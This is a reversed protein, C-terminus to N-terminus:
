SVEQAQAAQLADAAQANLCPRVHSQRKNGPRNPTSFLLKGYLLVNTIGAKEWNRRVRVRNHLDSTLHLERHEPYCSPASMSGPTSSISLQASSYCSVALTMNSHMRDLVITKMSVKIPIASGGTLTTSAQPQAVLKKELIAIQTFRVLLDEGQNNKFTTMSRHLPTFTCLLSIVEKHLKLSSSRPM